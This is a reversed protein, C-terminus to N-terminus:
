NQLRFKRISSTLKWPNQSNPLRHRGEFFDWMCHVAELEPFSLRLTNQLANMVYALKRHCELQLVSKRIIVICESIVAQPVAWLCVFEITFISKKGIVQKGLVIVPFTEAKQFSDSGDVACSM